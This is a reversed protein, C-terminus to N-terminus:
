ANFYVNKDLKLANIRLIVLFEEVEYTKDNKEHGNM